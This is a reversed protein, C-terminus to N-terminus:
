SSRWRWCSNLGTSARMAAAIRASTSAAACYPTLSSASRASTLAAAMERKALASPQSCTRSSRARSAEALATPLRKRSCCFAGGTDARYACIQSSMWSLRRWLMALRFSSTTCSSASAIQLARIIWM